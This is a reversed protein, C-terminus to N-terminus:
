KCECGGIKINVVHQKLIRQQQEQEIREIKKRCKTLDQTTRRLEDKTQKLEQNYRKETQTLEEKTQQLEIKTDKCCKILLLLHNNVSVNVHHNIDKRM